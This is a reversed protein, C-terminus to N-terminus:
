RNHRRRKLAATTAVAAAGAALYLTLTQSPPGHVVTVAITLATWALPAVLAITVVLPPRSNRM